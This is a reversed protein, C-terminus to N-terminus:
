SEGPATLLSKKEETQMFKLTAHQKESQQEETEAIEDEVDEFGTGGDGGIRGHHLTVYDGLKDMDMEDELIGIYTGYISNSNDGYDYEGEKDDDSHSDEDDSDNRARFRKQYDADAQLQKGQLSIKSNEIEPIATGIDLGWPVHLTSGDKLVRQRGSYDQKVNETNANTGNIYQIELNCSYGSIGTAWCYYNYKIGPINIYEAYKCINNTQNEYCIHLSQHQKCTFVDKELKVFGKSLNGKEPACTSKSCKVIEKKTPKIEKKMNKHRHWRTVLYWAYIDCVDNSHCDRTCLHLYKHKLCVFVHSDVSGILNRDVIRYIFHPSRSCSEGDCPIGEDFRLSGSPLEFQKEIAPKNQSVQNILFYTLKLNKKTYYLSVIAAGTRLLRRATEMRKFHVNGELALFEKVTNCKTNPNLRLKADYEARLSPNYLTSYAITFLNFTEHDNDQIQKDPHYKKCGRIYARRIDGQCDRENVGLIDYFSKM